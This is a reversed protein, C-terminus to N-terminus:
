SLIPNDRPRYRVSPRVIPRHGSPREHSSRVTADMIFNGPSLVCSDAYICGQTRASTLQTRVSANTGERAEGGRGQPRAALRCGRPRPRKALWFYIFLIFIFNKKKPLQQRSSFLFFFNPKGDGLDGIDGLDELDV